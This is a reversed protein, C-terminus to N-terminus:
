IDVLRPAASVDLFPQVGMRSRFESGNDTVSPSDAILVHQQHRRQLDVRNRLSGVYHGLRLPANPRDGILTIPYSFPSM